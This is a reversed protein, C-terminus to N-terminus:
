DAHPSPFLQQMLGQKHSRLTNLREIEIPMIAEIHDFCDAIRRQEESNPLMVTIAKLEETDLRGTGHGAVDVMRLLKERNGLLLYPLFRGELPDKPKLAKVDQNFSMERRLVCVPVDNLLTMGRTLMLVTGAPVVKAGATVAAPTIRDIADDLFVRKMDKASVWPISGNWFAPNAKSPTGGSQFDVIMGIAIEEWEPADRFEPFRLRPVTEGERPFLQQMLGQKHAKLAEVKQAQAAIVEDLSALCDAIRRQEQVSTARPPLPVPVAMLDADSVNLSGHARAGVAIYKRLWRGHLNAAFLYDLYAPDVTQEDVRFCTFISNPVAAREDGRYRAIFGQPFAKTASKNFAFDDRRLAIYNKISKGAITRGLKEQQSVLGVGSTVTYPVCSSGGVRETVLEALEGLDTAVWEGSGRYEPFRLRPTTGAGNTDAM